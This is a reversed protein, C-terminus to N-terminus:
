GPPVLVAVKGGSCFYCSWRLRFHAAVCFNCSSQELRVGEHVYVERRMTISIALIKRCRSSNVPKDPRTAAAVAANFHYNSSKSMFIM